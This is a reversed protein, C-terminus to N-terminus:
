GAADARRKLAPSPALRGITLTRGALHLAAARIHGSKEFESAQTLGSALAAEIDDPSLAGVARTVLRPGLDSDPQLDCARARMVAPHGPLDVANAVLTAAADADAANRALITVADAVGCSFSRGRWGSTAVGGVGDEARITARAFLSPKDPRDILGLAFIEGPALRVAIDGGNNVACRALPAAATMADAIEDAVAGAVAAMPTIFHTAAFPAIARAMRRGVPSHPASEGAPARLAPLEACLEDLMTRFRAIAARYAHEVADRAGWAEVILDIPGDGLHLRRGDPLRRLTQRASM